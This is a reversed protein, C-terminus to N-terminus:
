VGFIQLVFYSRFSRSFGLSISFFKLIRNQTLGQPWVSTPEDCFFVEEREELRRCQDLIEM